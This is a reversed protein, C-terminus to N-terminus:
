QSRAWSLDRNVGNGVEDAGLGGGGGNSRTAVGGGQSTGLGLLVVRADTVPVRVGSVVAWKISGSYIVIRIFLLFSIQCYTIFVLARESHGLISESTSQKLSSSTSM